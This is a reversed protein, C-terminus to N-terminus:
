PGRERTQPLQAVKQRAEVVDEAVALAVEAVVEAEELVDQSVTAVLPPAELLSIAEEAKVAEM